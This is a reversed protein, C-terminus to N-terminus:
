VYIHYIKTHGRYFFVGLDITTTIFEKFVRLPFMLLTKMMNIPLQLLKKAQRVLYADDRDTEVFAGRIDQLLSYPLSVIESMVVCKMLTSYQLIEQRLSEYAVINEDNKSIGM